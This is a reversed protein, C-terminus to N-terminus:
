TRSFQYTVLITGLILMVISVIVGAARFDATSTLTTLLNGGAGGLLLGGMTGALQRTRGASARTLYRAAQQVDISEIAEGGGHRRATRASEDILDEIYGNVCEQVQAFAESTFPQPEIGALTREIPDKAPEPQEITM